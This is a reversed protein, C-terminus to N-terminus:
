TRPKEVTLVANPCTSTVAANNRDGTYKAQWYYKGPALIETVKKSSAIVGNSVTATGEHYTALTLGPKCSGALLTYSVKGTAYRANVGTLTARDSEGTLGHALVLNAGSKAGRSQRTTLKTHDPPVDQQDFQQVDVNEDADTGNGNAVVWVLWGQGGPGVSSVSQALPQSLNTL